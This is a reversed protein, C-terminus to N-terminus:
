RRATSRITASALLSKPVASGGTCAEFAAAVVEDFAGQGLREFLADVKEVSPFVPDICCAAVLAVPLTDTNFNREPPVADPRPPHARKLEAFKAPPLARMVFTHLSGAMEEELATIQEALAVAPPKESLSRDVDVGQDTVAQLRRTLDEHRANLDGALCVQASVERPKARAILDDVDAM